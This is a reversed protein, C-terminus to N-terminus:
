DTNDTTEESGSESEPESNNSETNENESEKQSLTNEKDHEVNADIVSNEKKILESFDVTCNCGFVASIKEASEKRCKLRNENIIQSFIDTNHLETELNQSSKATTRFPLNYLNCYRRILEYHFESLFHMKEVANEDTLRLVADDRSTPSGNNVTKSKDDIVSFMDDNDMIRKMVEQLQKADVGSQAKAIPHMKSWTILARESDDTRALMDAFWLLNVYESYNFDNNQIIVANHKTLDIQLAYDSGYTEVVDSTGDNRCVGVFSCPTIQFGKNVSSVKFDDLNYAVAVGSMINKEAIHSKFDDPLGKWTFQECGIARIIKGYVGTRKFSPIRADFRRRVDALVKDTRSMTDNREILPQYM